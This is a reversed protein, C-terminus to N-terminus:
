DCSAAAGVLGGGIAGVVGVAVCGPIAGFSGGVGCGAIGGTITGGVVGAACKGWRKWWSKEEKKLLVFSVQDNSGSYKGDLAEMWEVFSLMFRINEVLLQEERVPLRSTVVVKELEVLRRKYHEHDIASHVDGIIDMYLLTKESVFHRLRSEEIDDSEDKVLDIDSVTRESVPVYTGLVDMDVVRLGHGRSAAVFFETFKEDSTNPNTFFVQLTQDFVEILPNTKQHNDPVADSFNDDSCSGLFLAISLAFLVKSNNKM